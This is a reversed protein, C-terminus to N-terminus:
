QSTASGDAMSQPAEETEMTAVKVQRKETLIGTSENKMQNLDEEDEEEEEDDSSEEDEEGCPNYEDEDEDDDSINKEVFERLLSQNAALEAEDDEDDEESEEVVNGRRDQGDITVLTPMADFLDRRYNPFDDTLPNLELELNELKPLQTLCKVDEISKLKNGSLSLSKLETCVCLASLQSKDNLFNDTLELQALMPLMPFNALSTLATRNCSLSTLSKFNSLVAADTPTIEKFKLEDLILAQEDAPESETRQKIAAEM